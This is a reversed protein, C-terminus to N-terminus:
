TMIGPDHTPDFGDKSCVGEGEGWVSPMHSDPDRQWTQSLPKPWSVDQSAELYMEACYHPELGHLPVWVM